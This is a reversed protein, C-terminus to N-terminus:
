SIKESSPIQPWWSGYPLSFLVSKVYQADRLERLRQKKAEREVLKPTASDTSKPRGISDVPEGLTPEEAMMAM